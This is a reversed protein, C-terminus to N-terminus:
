TMRQKANKLDIYIQSCCFPSIEINFGNVEAYDIAEQTPFAVAEVGAKIALVDTESRHKGQPRMCGLVVPTEPLMLRGILAIRAINLPEPPGVHEMETKHIPMFAIVVLAAPMFRAIMELAHFEGELKGYQLGVIVHPVFPIGAENLSNLSREYDAASANLNYIEKITRDSGIVDILATDVGAKQLNKATVSDVVGTHVLVTMDLENKIRSLADIFANLPVSGDLSCGGSILCGKAGQVKFKSCLEFLKEPSTVPHMTNLVRGGCHKCKLACGNATVSITPFDQSSLCFLSSTYNMFSPAYFHITRRQAPTPNSNLLSLLETDAMKWITEPSLLPMIRERCTVWVAHIFGKPSDVSLLLKHQTFREVKIKASGNFLSHLYIFTELAFMSNGTFVRIERPEAINSPSVRPLASQLGEVTYRM